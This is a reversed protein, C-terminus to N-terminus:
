VSSRPMWVFESLQLIQSPDIRFIECDIIKKEVYEYIASIEYYELNTKYIIYNLSCLIRVFFRQKLHM